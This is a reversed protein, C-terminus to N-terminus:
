RACPPLLGLRAKLALVRRAADDLRAASIGGRRAEREVAAIVRGLRALPIPVGSGILLLDDGARLAALAATEPGPGAFIAPTVLSDTILLGTFGLEGRILGQIITPSAYVATGSADLAPIRVRTVMMAAVGAAIAARMPPLDRRELEARTARVVPLTLDANVRVEGLGLFHKATAAIGAEQYGRVAAAALLADIRPDPGFSRQGIASDPSVRVDVVPALNMNVGLRRLALGQARTDALVRGASAALGYDAQAALPTLGVRIRVVPGGEQDTAVLLPLRAGAQASAVLGRLDSATGVNRAFLIVGGPQWARLFASTARSPQTGDISVMFVQGVKAPLDLRAFACAARATPSDAAAHVPIGGSTVVALCVLGLWRRPM